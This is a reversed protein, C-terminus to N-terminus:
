EKKEEAKNETKEKKSKSEIKEKDEKTHYVNASIIFKRSGFFGKIKKIKVNEPNSSFKEAIFNEAEQVKPAVNTEFDIEVEKRNFLPNEKQNLIM